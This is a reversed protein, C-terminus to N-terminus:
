APQLAFSLIGVVRAVEALPSASSPPPLITIQYTLPDISVIMPKLAACAAMLLGFQEPTIQEADVAIVNPQIEAQFAVEECTHLEVVQLLPSIRLHAALAELMGSSGFVLIKRCTNM